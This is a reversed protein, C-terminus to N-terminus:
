FGFRFSRPNKVYGNELYSNDRNSIFNYPLLITLSMTRLFIVSVITHNKSVLDLLGQIKSMDM